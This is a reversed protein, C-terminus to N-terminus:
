QIIGSNLKDTCMQVGQNPSAHHSNLTKGLFVVCHTQGRSSGPGSLELSNIM